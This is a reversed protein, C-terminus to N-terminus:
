KKTVQRIFDTEDRRYPEGNPRFIDHFWVPPESPYPKQWSDWPYITQSKGAVFGWNYAAIRERKMIPLINQFTSGTVRAMYETCLLPRGFQKLHQIRTEFDQINGYNHFSIIDSNEILFRNMSNMKDLSSWDGNWPGATVPQSPKAERVWGFGERVLKEGLERKNALEQKLNNKGYSNANDNDPENVVDWALIRKDDKFHGVVAVAYTRLQGWKKPNQLINRGPSQVWGSNHVGPTPSKQRGAKPFPDWCSDFLVLMPRIKHKDAIALFQDLRQIFGKPDKRYALDHLFVRMTNMGLSEAWGLETDILDPSFTGAQWMELENIANSPLFNAGTLWGQRDYWNNAKDATWRGNPEQQAALCLVTALSLFLRKMKRM